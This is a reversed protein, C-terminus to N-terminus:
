HVEIPSGVVGWFIANKMEKMQLWLCGCCYLVQQYSRLEAKIPVPIKYDEISKPNLLQELFKRERAKQEALEPTLNPPNPIGGDLPMLQILTAFCHTAMLRVPQNQDSMCGAVCALAWTM